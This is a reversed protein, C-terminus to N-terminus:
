CNPLEADTNFQIKFPVEKIYYIQLHIMEYIYKELQAAWCCHLHRDVSSSKYFSMVDNEIYAKDDYLDGFRIPAGCFIIRKLLNAAYVSHGM